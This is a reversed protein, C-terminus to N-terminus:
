ARCWDHFTKRPGSSGPLDLGCRPCSRIPVRTKQKWVVRINNSEQTGALEMNFSDHKAKIYGRLRSVDVPGLDKAAAQVFCNSKDWPDSRGCDGLTCTGFLEFHQLYDELSDIVLSEALERAV